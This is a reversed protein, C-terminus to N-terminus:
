LPIREPEAEMPLEDDRGLCRATIAKVREPSGDMLTVLQRLLARLEVAQQSPLATVGQILTDDPHLAPVDALVARGAATIVLPTRRRDRPDRERTVLGAAVLADVAAVLSPAALEMRRSVEVLTLPGDALVRLVGFPLSGINVRADHLRRELDRRAQKLVVGCLAQLEESLAIRERLSLSTSM